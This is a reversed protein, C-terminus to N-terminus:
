GSRIVVVSSITHEGGVLHTTRALHGVASRRVDRPQKNLPAM